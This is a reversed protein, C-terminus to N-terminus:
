HRLAGARHREVVGDGDPLVAEGDVARQEEEAFVVRHPFVGFPDGLPWIRRPPSAVYGVGYGVVYGVRYGMWLGDMAWGYGVRYGMWLGGWLGDMARGYGVRYGVRYGMRYGVRYGM